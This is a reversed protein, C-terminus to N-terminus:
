GRVKNMLSEREQKIREWDIKYLELDTMKKKVFLDLETLSVASIDDFDPTM